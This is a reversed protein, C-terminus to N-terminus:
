KVADAALDYERLFFDVLRKIRKQSIIKTKRRPYSNRSWEAKCQRCYYISHLAGQPHKITPKYVRLILQQCELPHKKCPQAGAKAVM